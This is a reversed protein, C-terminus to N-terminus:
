VLFNVILSGTVLFLLGMTYKRTKHVYDIENHSNLLKFIPILTFIIAIDVVLSLPKLYSSTVFLIGQYFLLSLLYLCIVLLATNYTGFKVPITNKKNRSDWEVDAMDKHIEFAVVVTFILLFFLLIETSLKEPNTALSGV